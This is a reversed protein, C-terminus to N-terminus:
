SASRLENCSDAENFAAELEGGADLQELETFTSSLQQGMTSLAASIPPSRRSSGAGGSADDVASQM